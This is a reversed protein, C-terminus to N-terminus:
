FKPLGPERSPPTLGFFDQIAQDFIANDHGYMAVNFATDVWHLWDPDGQRVAAAYLQTLWRMGSDAYKEPARKVLWWVTSLDIAAADVRGADLAQIVNAQTDIQLVEASPLVQHVLQDAFVNQLVSVKTETGGALLAPFTERQSNPKTLLAVGEVYYPRTFAVQQARQATVTMFQICIDVKGTAINPIRAAPDQRVYEVKAEDDFLGQALIRAMAIDMGTLNGADDEFHWPANTSGTGVVLHGRDLVTRLLSDAAAQAYAERVGLAAAAAAGVAGGVLGAGIFGRRNAGLESMIDPRGAANPAAM